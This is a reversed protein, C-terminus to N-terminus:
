AIEYCKTIIPLKRGSNKQTFKQPGHCGVIILCLINMTSLYKHTKNEYNGQGAFYKILLANGMKVTSWETRVQIALTTKHISFERVADNAYTITM